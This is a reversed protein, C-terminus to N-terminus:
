SGPLLLGCNLVGNQYGASPAPTPVLIDVSREGFRRSDRLFLLFPDDGVGTARTPWCSLSCLSSANLTSLLFLVSILLDELRYFIVAGGNRRSALIRM